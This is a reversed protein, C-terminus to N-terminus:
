LDALNQGLVGQHAGSGYRGGAEFLSNVRPAIQRAAADYTSALYPNTNPDLYRGSITDQINQLAGPALTQNTTTTTNGAPTMGGGQTGGLYGGLLLGLLGGIPSSPQTAVPDAM